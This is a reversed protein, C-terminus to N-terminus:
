RSNERLCKWAVAFYVYIHYALSQMRTIYVQTVCLLHCLTLETVQWLASAFM